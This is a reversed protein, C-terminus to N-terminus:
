RLSQYCYRNTVCLNGLGQDQSDGLIMAVEEYRSVVGEGGERDLDEPEGAATYGISELGYRQALSPQPDATWVVQGRPASM